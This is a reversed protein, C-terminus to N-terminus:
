LIGLKRLIEACRPSEKSLEQVAEKFKKHEAELQTVRYNLPAVATRRDWLVFGVLAFMGTFTLGFGWLVVQRLDEIRQNLADIRQELRKQGEDLRIVREELRAVREDMQAVRKELGTLREVIERSTTTAEREQAAGVPSVAILIATLGLILASRRGKCGKGEM